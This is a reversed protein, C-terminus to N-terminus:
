ITPYGVESFDIFYLFSDLLSDDSFRSLKKLTKYTRTYRGASVCSWNRLFVSAISVYDIFIDPGIHLSKTFCFTISYLATALFTNNFYLIGAPIISLIFYPSDWDDDVITYNKNRLSWSRKPLYFRCVRDIFIGLHIFCKIKRFCYFVNQKLLKRVQTQDVCGSKGCIWRIM